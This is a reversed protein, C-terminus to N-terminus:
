SRQAYVKQARSESRLRHATRSAQRGYPSRDVCGDWSVGERVIRRRHPRRQDVQYSSPLNSPFHFVCCSPMGKHTQPKGPEEDADPDNLTGEEDVDEDALDLDEEADEDDMLTNEPNDSELGDQTDVKTWEDEPRETALDATIEDVTLMSATDTRDRKSRLETMYSMRRSGVSLNRSVRRNDGTIDELSESFSETPFPIPPLLQPHEALKPAEPSDHLDISEGDETSLSVRPVSEDGPREPLPPPPAPPSSFSTRASSM